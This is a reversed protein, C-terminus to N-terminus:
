IRGPPPPLIPLEVRPHIVVIIEDFESGLGVDGDLDVAGEVSLSPVGFGSVRFGIGNLKFRPDWALMVTL